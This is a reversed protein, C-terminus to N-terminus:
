IEVRNFKWNRLFDLCKSTEVYQTLERFPRREEGSWQM